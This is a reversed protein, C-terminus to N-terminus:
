WQHCYRACYFHLTISKRVDFCWVSKLDGLSFKIHIHIYYNRHGKASSNICQKTKAQTQQKKEVDSKSTSRSIRTMTTQRMALWRENLLLSHIFSNKHSEYPLRVPRVIRHPAFRHSEIFCDVFGHVSRFGARFLVPHPWPYMRKDCMMQLVSMQTKWAILSAFYLSPFQADAFVGRSM